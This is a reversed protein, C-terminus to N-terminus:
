KGLRLKDVREHRRRQRSGRFSGGLRHVVAGVLGTLLAQLAWWLPAPADSGALLVAGLLLLVARQMLVAVAVVLLVGSAGQIVLRQGARAALYGIITDAFGFLGYPGGSLVDHTLGAVMGGLLGSLSSAGLANLVVVVVFLDFARPFDPWLRVGALHIVLAALLAAALKLARM